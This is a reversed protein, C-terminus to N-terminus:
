LLKGLVNAALKLRRVTAMASRSGDIDVLEQDKDASMKADGWALQCPAATTM